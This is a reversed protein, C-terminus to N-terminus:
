IYIFGTGPNSAWGALALTITEYPCKGGLCAGYFWPDPKCLVDLATQSAMPVGSCDQVLVSGSEALAQVADQVNSEPPLVEETEPAEVEGPLEPVDGEAQVAGLSLAAATLSFVAALAFLVVVRKHLDM